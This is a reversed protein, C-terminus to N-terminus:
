KDVEIETRRRRVILFWCVFTFPVIQGLLAPVTALNWLWGRGSPIELRGDESVGVSSRGRLWLSSGPAAVTAREDSDFRALAAGWWDVGIGQGDAGVAPGVWGSVEYLAVDSDDIVIRLDADDDLAAYRDAHINKVLVIWRVGLEALDDGVSEGSVLQEILADAPQERPDGVERVGPALGNSSSSLVDGGLYLPMPNLVRRVPGDAVSLNYYQFWPLSLVTGPEDVILARTEAWGAPVPEASLQGGLGWVGPISLMMAVALPMISVVGAVGAWRGSRALTRALRRGGLAAAPALWLLYLTLLRHGERWIGGLLNDNIAQFWADVIPMASIAAILWGVVGVAVLPRRFDARIESAGAVALGLLVVGCIAVVWGSGGVQFYTNWFGGGASLRAFGAPGHAATPFSAGAAMNVDGAAAVLLGPVLWPAQAAIAVSVAQWPRERAGMVIAVGVVTLALSGGFHGAFGMAFCAVFTARLDRGPRLLVLLVWPLIAHPVTVNFHGVAARTLVFPSLAYLVGAVHGVPIRLTTPLATGGVADLKSVLRRMGVWAGVFGVVLLLKGTATAPLVGSVVSIPVWLPVRRPLEPGLGWFGRPIDLDPVLVLDLNLLMGPGLAPGLLVLVVLTPIAWEALRRWTLSGAIM